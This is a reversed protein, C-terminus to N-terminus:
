GASAHYEPCRCDVGHRWAHARAALTSRGYRVRLRELRRAVVMASVAPWDLMEPATCRQLHEIGYAGVNGHPGRPGWREVPGGRHEECAVPDVLGRREARRFFVSADVRQVHGVHVGVRRCGWSERRCIRHVERAYEPHGALQAGVEASDDPDVAELAALFGLVRLLATVAGAGEGAVM